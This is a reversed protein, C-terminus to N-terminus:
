ESSPQKSKPRLRLVALMTVVGFVVGMIIWSKRQSKIVNFGTVQFNITDGSNLESLNFYEASTGDAMTMRGTASGLGTIKGPGLQSFLVFESTPLSIRKAVDMTASDIGLTYSFAAQHNTGPPMAMTDYFGDETVVVADTHFYGAFRLDAFEAPLLIKLVVPLGQADKEKSIVAMDSANKLQMYETIVLSDSQAKIVFHHMGVSLKSNDESVDYVTVHAVGTGSESSLSVARSAFMMDGHRASAVAVTHERTPVNEFVAQGSADVKGELTETLQEHQFIRVFVKDDTVSTGQATGNTVKVVLLTNSNTLPADEAFATTSLISLFALASALFKM